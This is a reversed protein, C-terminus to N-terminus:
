SPSPLSPTYIRGWGYVCRPWWVCVCVCVCNSVKAAMYVFVCVCNSVKAVLFVCVCVWVCVCVCVCKSVKALLYDLPPMRFFHSDFALLNRDRPMAPDPRLAIDPNFQHTTQVEM